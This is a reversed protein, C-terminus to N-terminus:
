YEMLKMNFTNDGEPGGMTDVVWPRPLDLRTECTARALSALSSRRLVTVRCWGNRLREVDCEGITEVM